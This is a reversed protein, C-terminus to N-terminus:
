SLPGDTWVDYWLIDKSYPQADEDQLYYYDMTDLFFLVWCDNEPDFVAFQTYNDLQASFMAVEVQQDFTLIRKSNEEPM